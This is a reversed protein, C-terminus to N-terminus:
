WRCSEPLSAAECLRCFRVHERKKVDVRASRATTLAAAEIVENLNILRRISTFKRSQMRGIIKKLEHRANPLHRPASDTLRLRSVQVQCLNASLAM